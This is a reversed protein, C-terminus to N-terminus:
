RTICVGFWVVQAIWDVSEVGSSMVFVFSEEVRLNQCVLYM